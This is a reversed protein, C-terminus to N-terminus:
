PMFAEYAAESYSHKPDETNGTMDRYMFEVVHKYGSLSSSGFEVCGNHDNLWKRLLFPMPRTKELEAHSNNADSNLMLLMFSHAKQEDKIAYHMFAKWIFMKRLHSISGLHSHELVQDMMILINKYKNLYDVLADVSYKQKVGSYKDGMWMHNAVRVTFPTARWKLRETFNVRHVMKRPTNGDIRAMAKFKFDIGVYSVIYGRITALASLRNGGDLVYGKDSFLLDCPSDNDYKHDKIDKTINRVTVETPDRNLVNLGADIIARAQKGTICIQLKAKAGRMLKYQEPKLALIQLLEARRNPLLDYDAKNYDHAKGKRTHKSM